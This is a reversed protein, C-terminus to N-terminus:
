LNKSRSSGQWAGTIALAAQYHVKELKEMVSHLTTGLPPQHIIAAM